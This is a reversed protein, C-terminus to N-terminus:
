LSKQAMMYIIIGTMFSSLSFIVKKKEEMAMKCSSNPGCEASFGLVRKEGEGGRKGREEGVWGEGV